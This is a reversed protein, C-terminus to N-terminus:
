EAREEGGLLVCRDLARSCGDEVGVDLLDQPRSEGANATEGEDCSLCLEVGVEVEGDSVVQRVSGLAAGARELVPHAGVGGRDGGAGREVGDVAGQCGALPDLRSRGCCAGVPVGQRGHPHDIGYRTPQRRLVLERAGGRRVLVLHAVRGQGGPEQPDARGVEEADTMGNDAGGYALWTSGTHEAEEELREDGLAHLDVGVQALGVDPM